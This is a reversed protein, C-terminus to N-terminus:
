HSAEKSTPLVEVTPPLLISQPNTAAAIAPVDNLFHYCVGFEVSDAPEGLRFTIVVDGTTNMSVVMEQCSEPVDTIAIALAKDSDILHFWRQARFDSLPTQGVYDTRGETALSWHAADAEFKTGWVIEEASGKQLKGFTGGGIGFDCTLLEARVAFPLTFTIEDGSHPQELEHTVTIWSKCATTDTRTRGVCGDGYKGSAYVMASLSNGGAEVEDANPVLLEGNRQITGITRLHSLGDYVVSAPMGERSVKIALRQQQTSLTGDNVQITLHDPVVKRASDASLRLELEGFPDLSVAFQLLWEYGENLDTWECPLAEGAATVLNLGSMNLESDTCDLMAILPYLFRRIGHEEKVRIRALVESM